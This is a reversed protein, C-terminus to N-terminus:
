KPVGKLAAKIQPWIRCLADVADAGPLPDDSDLVAGFEAKFALLADRMAPAVAILRGDAIDQDGNTPWVEAITQEGEGDSTGACIAVRNGAHFCHQSGVGMYWPGPTTKAKKRAM